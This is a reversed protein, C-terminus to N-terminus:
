EREIKCRGSGVDCSAGKIAVCDAQICQGCSASDGGIRDGESKAEDAKDARVAFGCSLAGTCDHSVQVVVCTDGASCAGLDAKLQEAEEKFSACDPACGPACLIAAATSCALFLAQITPFPLRKM